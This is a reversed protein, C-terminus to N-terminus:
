PTKQHPTDGFLGLFLRFDKLIEASKTDYQDQNILGEDLMSKLEKLKNKVGSEESTTEVITKSTVYDLRGTLSRCNEITLKRSKAEKVYEIKASRSDWDNGSLTIAKACVVMDGSNSLSSSSSNSTSSIDSSSTSNELNDNFSLLEKVASYDGPNRNINNKFAETMSEGIARLQNKSLIEVNSYKKPYWLTYFAHILPTGQRRQAELLINLYSDNNEFDVSQICYSVALRERLAGASHVKYLNGNDKKSKCKDIGKRFYGGMQRNPLTLNMFAGKKINKFNIYTYNQKKNVKTAKWEGPPFSITVGTGLADSFHNQYIEGKIFNNALSINISFIIIGITILINRM